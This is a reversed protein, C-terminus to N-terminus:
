QVTHIHDTAARTHRWLMSLAAAVSSHSFLTPTFPRLWTVVIACDCRMGCGAPGVRMAAEGRVDSRVDDDDGEGRGGGRRWGVPGMEGADDAAGPAGGDVDEEDDRSVGLSLRRRPPRRHGRELAGDHRVDAARHADAPTRAVTAVLGDRPQGSTSRLSVMTVVMAM